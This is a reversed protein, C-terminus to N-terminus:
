LVKDLFTVIRMSVKESQEFSFAHNADLRNEMEFGRVYKRGRAVARSVDHFSFKLFVEQWRAQDSGTHIPSSQISLGPEGLMELTYVQYREMLYPQNLQWMLTASFRGQLLVM